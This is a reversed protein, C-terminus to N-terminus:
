TNAAGNDPAGGPQQIADEEQSGAEAALGNLWTLSHSMLLSYRRFALSSVLSTQVIVRSSM